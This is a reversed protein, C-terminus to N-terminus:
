EGQGLDIGYKRVKYRISRFSINLIRAAETQNGSTRNLSQILIRREISALTEELDMGQVPLQVDVPVPSNGLVRGQLVHSPLNEACLHDTAEFTVAHEVINELERVNGPFPYRLLADLTEPHMARIIKGTQRSFSRLFFGALLPIDERRDRLPPINLNVVNLRYYLDERFTQNEVMKELNRNTAAVIRIDVPKEEHGGVALIKREQIVRLMKVQMHIPLEGIEDLMLTGGDATNILGEKNKEAGTFAGKTYGFLESELLNEPIAGCNIVVFPKDARKSRDHLARAALQKGTGSEGTILVSTKAPAVKRIIDYVKRIAASRGIMSGIPEILLASERLSLNDVALRHVEFARRIQFRLEAVNFPKEVYDFAGDAMAGLASHHTGFATLLIVQTAPAVKKAHNLVETGTARPMKLDTLIVAFKDLDTRQIAEMGDEALTVTYGEEQLFVELLERMSPEDDVVLIRNSTM